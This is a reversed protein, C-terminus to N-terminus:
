AAEKLIAVPAEAEGTTQDLRLGAVIAADSHKMWNILIHRMRESPVYLQVKQPERQRIRSRWIWQILETLAFLDTRVPIDLEEFYSLVFPSQHRDVLYALAQKHDYDNTAKANMPVFNVKRNTEPPKGNVPKPPMKSYRPGKVKSAVNKFCTWMNTEAGEGFDRFFAATASKLRRIDGRKLDDARSKLRAKFWSSSLPYSKGVRKGVSNRHRDMDVHILDALKEKLGTNDVEAYPRLHGDSLSMLRYAVDNARLYDSMVQGEFMYTCVYVEKFVDLFAAPFQWILVGERTQVLNGNDCLNVLESLDHKHGKVKRYDPWKDHNWRLVKKDDTYIAGAKELMRLTQPHIDYRDVVDLAEDIILTYGKGRLEEYLDGTMMRFLQHTSSINEGDRVLNLLDYYKRRHRPVPNRFNLGSCSATCRDSEPLSIAIYIYKERPNDRMMEFVFETKGEGMLADIVTINTM